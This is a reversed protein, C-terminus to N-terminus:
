FGLKGFHHEWALKQDAANMLSYYGVRKAWQRQSEVVKASFPDKMLDDLVADWAELQAKM